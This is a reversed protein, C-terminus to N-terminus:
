SEDVPLNYEGNRMWAPQRRERLPRAPPPEQDNDEDPSTDGRDQEDEENDEGDSRHCAYNDSYEDDSDEEENLPLDAASSTPTPVSTPYLCSLPMTYKRAMFRDTLKQLSTYGKEISVVMYHDRVNTQDCEDKTYNLDGVQTTGPSAM